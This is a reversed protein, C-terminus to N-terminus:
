NSNVPIPSQQSSNPLTSNNNSSLESSLAFSSNCVKGHLKNNVYINAAQIKISKHDIGTQILRWREKMLLSEITRKAQSMDPKISINNPLSNRNSLLSIVDIARTLKILIPRPRKASEKYKGLRLCDRINQSTIEHDVHSVATIVNTLDQKAQDYKKTGKSCELIGYLVANFERDAQTSASNPMTTNAAIAPTASNTVEMNTVTEPTDGGSLETANGPQDPSEAQNAKLALIQKKAASLNETLSKVLQKLDEIEKTQKSLICHPCLYPSESESLAEFSQKSLRICTRHIWADCKGECFVANDGTIGEVENAKTIRSGCVLCNM